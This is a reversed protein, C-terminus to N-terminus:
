NRCNESVEIGFAIIIIVRTPSSEFYFFGLISTAHNCCGFAKLWLTEFSEGGSKLRRHRKLNVRFTWESLFCLLNDNDLTSSAFCGIQSLRDRNGGSPMLISKIGRSDVKPFADFSIPGFASSLLDYNIPMFNIASCNKKNEFQLLDALQELSTESFRILQSITRVKSQDSFNFLDFGHLTAIKMFEMREPEKAKAITPGTMFATGGHRLPPFKDASSLSRGPRLLTGSPTVRQPSFLRELM